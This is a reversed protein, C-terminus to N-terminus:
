KLGDMLWVSVAGSSHRWFLDDKGDGNLDGIAANWDMPVAYPLLAADQLTVGDLQWVAIAGSNNRWLLDDKGDGDFDGSKTFSWDFGVPTLFRSRLVNVGDMLWVLTRNDVQNRWFIDRKGDGNFDGTAAVIWTPDLAELGNDGYLADAETGGLLQDNDLGGYIEDRGGLTPDTTTLFDLTALNSDPGVVTDGAFAYDFRGNDGLIKDDGKDGYILDNAFGGAILDNGQNGFITDNGGIGSDITEILRVAGGTLVIRGNDGLLSDDETGGAITDNATGGLVLDTGENGAITDNGGLEPHTTQILDITILNGDLTYDLLGNDGLISDNGQNGAITDNGFGGILIDNGNNGEIRDDGGQNPFRTEIKETINAANRTIYANDGVIVDDGDNGTLNDGAIGTTDRGGSGGIIMDQGGGGTITDQGGFDPDTSFINHPVNGSLIVTGNDGLLIDNANDAGGSIQDNGTGGLVVDANDGANISDNSGRNPDTTNLQVITGADFTMQGNDGIILDAGTGAAITDNGTGGLIISTGENGQIVDNGGADPAITRVLTLNGNSDFTVQGHDGLVRDDGLNGFIRDDVAGGFILDNGVNGLITDNGDGTAPNSTASTVRGATFTLTGNDGFIFDAAGNLTDLNVVERTVPNISANDGAIADNGAGGYIYDTEDVVGAQSSGGIMMDDGGQGYLTDQGSGGVILDDGGKLLFLAEVKEVVNAANRTIYANDGYIIDDFRNGILTDGGNPIGTRDSGGSGGVIINRVSGGTIFDKGGFEEDKSFIDNAQTSGDAGVIVGNDGLMIDAINDTGNTITDNGTGGLIIDAGDNGLLTDNGGNEPSLTEVQIVTGNAIEVRGNDGLIIDDGSDGTVESDNGTGAVLIDNGEQGRIIDAGGIAPNTSAIVEVGAGPRTIQGDDGFLIDNGTNGELYDNGSGGLLRDNGAQGYLFDNDGGGFLTDDGSGGGLTAVGTTLNVIGEDGLLYDSGAGGSLSDGGVGGYLIDRGNRGELVDNGLEGYLVDDGEGGSLFDGSNNPDFRTLDISTESTRDGYLLDRGGNGFLDDRGAGGYLFDNSSGGVLEDDGEGGYLFAFGTRVLDITTEATLLDDGAQGYLRTQGLGAFLRDNGESGVRPPIATGSSTFEGLRADPAFDGWLESEALVNAALEIVDNGAGGEAIIRRIGKFEQTRGFASVIVTESGSISDDADVHEVKFIESSDTIQGPIQRDSAFRGLNLRLVDSSIRTALGWDTGDPAPLDYNIVTRDFLTREIPKTADVGATGSGIAQLTLKGSRDFTGNFTSNPAVTRINSDLRGRLTLPASSIPNEAGLTGGVVFGLNLNLNSGPKLNFGATPTAGGTLSLGKASYGFGLKGQIEVDGGLRIPVGPSLSVPASPVKFSDIDIVPFDLDLLKATDQGVWLKFAESASLIPLSLGLKNFLPVVTQLGNIQALNVTSSLSNTPTANQLATRSVTPSPNSLNLKVEGKLITYSGTPAITALQDLNGYAALFRDLNQFAAETVGTLDLPSAAELLDILKITTGPIGEGLSDLVPQIPKLIENIKAAISNTLNKLSSLDIAIERFSVDFKKFSLTPELDWNLNLQTRLTPFNSSQSNLNLKIQTGDLSNETLTPNLKFGAGETQIDIALSENFDTGADSVKVNLLGFKADTNNLTNRLDVGFNIGIEKADSLDLNFQNNILGFKLGFEYDVTPTVQLANQFKLAADTGMNLGLDLSTATPNAIARRVRLDIMFNGSNTISLPNSTVTGGFAQAVRTQIDAVSSAGVLGTTLATRFTSDFFQTSQTLGTGLVPLRSGTVQDLRTQLTALFTNLGTAITNVQSNSVATDFTHGYTAITTADFALSAAIEGTKVELNWDGGRKASGTRNNSAAIDAGIVHSLTQIFANGTEGLAVDCGYLLVDAGQSLHANWRQLASSYRSLTNLSLDTSGLQLRGASGHSVIHIASVDQFQSLVQSIQAVGDQTANLLFVRDAKASIAKLDGAQVGGMLAQFDSVGADVFVLSSASKFPTPDSFTNQVLPNSEALASLFVSSNSFSM